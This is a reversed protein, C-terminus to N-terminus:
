LLQDSLVILINLKGILHKGALISLLDEATCHIVELVECVVASHDVLVVESCGIYVQM